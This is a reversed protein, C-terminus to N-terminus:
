FRRRCMIVVCLLSGLGMLIGFGPTEAAEESVDWEEEAPMVFEEADIIKKKVVTDKSIVADPSLQVVSEGRKIIRDNNWIIVDVIYNYNKPVSLDVSVIKTTEPVISGTNAWTKDALLSADMERAKVLMRYDDSLDLGENSLYIDAQLVVKSDVVDKVIFDVEGIEIGINDVDSILSDLNSVDLSRERQLEKGKYLILKLRYNDAKSLSVEIPVFTVENETVDGVFVSKQQELFGTRKDYVKLLLSVNRSDASQSELETTINLDVYSSRVKESSMDVNTIRLTSQQEFDRLCGASLVSALIIFLLLACVVIKQSKSM